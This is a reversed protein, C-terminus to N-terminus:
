WQALYQVGLMSASAWPAVSSSIGRSHGFDYNLLNPLLYGSLLGVTAGTVVDSLHHRDAVVRLTGVAAAAGLATACAAIDGAGGGYLRLNQHHACVLGAGTFSSATHGSFFSRAQAKCSIEEGEDCRAVDPRERSVLNKTLGSILKTMFTAQMSIMAMQFGVDYSGHVAGAVALSDLFPMAMLGYLLYDSAESAAARGQVTDAALLTRAQSDILIQSRWRPESPGEYLNSGFFLTGGM